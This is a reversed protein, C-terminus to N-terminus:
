FNIDTNVLISKLKELEFKTLYFCYEVDDKLINVSYIYKSIVNGNFYKLNYKKLFEKDPDDDELWYSSTKRKIETVDKICNLPITYKDELCVLVLNSDEVYTQLTLSDTEINDEEDLIKLKGSSQKFYPNLVELEIATSPIKHYLLAQTVLNDYNSQILAEYANNNGILKKSVFILVGGIVAVIIPIATLWLYEGMITNLSLKGKEYLEVAFTCIFMIAVAILLYGGMQLMFPRGFQKNLAKIDKNAEADIALSLEEPITDTVFEKGTLNEEKDANDYCFLPKM